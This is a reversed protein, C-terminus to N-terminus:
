IVYLIIDYQFKDACDTLFMILYQFDVVLEDM